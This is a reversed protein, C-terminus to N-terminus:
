KTQQSGMQTLRERELFETFLSDYKSTLNFYLSDYALAKGKPGQEKFSELKTEFFELVDVVDSDFEAIDSLSKVTKKEEEVLITLFAVIEEDHELYGELFRIAQWNSYLTWVVLLGLIFDRNSIRPFRFKM